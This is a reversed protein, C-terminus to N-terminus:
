LVVGVAKGKNELREFTALSPKTIVELSHQLMEPITPPNEMIQGGFVM